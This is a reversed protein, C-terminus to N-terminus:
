VPFIQRYTHLYHSITDGPSGTTVLTRWNWCWHILCACYKSFAKVLTSTGEGQLFWGHQWGSWLNLDKFAIEPTCNIDLWFHQYTFSASTPLKKINISQIQFSIQHITCYSCRDWFQLVKTDLWEPEQRRPTHLTSLVSPQVYLHILGGSGNWLKTDMPYNPGIITYSRGLDNSHTSATHLYNQESQSNVSKLNTDCSFEESTQM